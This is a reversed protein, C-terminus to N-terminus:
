KAPVRNCTDEHLKVWNNNVNAELTHLLQDEGHRVFSDRAQFQVHFRHVTGEFILKDGQWGATSLSADGGINDVLDATLGEQVEDFGWHAIWALPVPNATSGKPEEYRAELWFGDLLWSFGLSGSTPHEPGPGLTRGTCAWSGVLPKLQAVAQNPVPPKPPPSPKAATAPKGSGKAPAKGQKAVAAGSAPKNGQAPAAPAAPAAATGGAPSDGTAAQPPPEAGLRFASGLALGLVLVAVTAPVRNMRTM